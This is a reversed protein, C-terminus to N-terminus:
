RPAVDGPKSGHVSIRGDSLLEFSRERWALQTSTYSAVWVAFGILDRIPYLWPRYLCPPDHTIGWGVLLSEIMRNVISWAFVAAGIGPHGLLCGAVLALIGYPVSFILGTGLHGLPRSRRTGAAWRVLHQWMKKFGMHPVVHAIAHRSLVVNYGNKAIRNGIIFDHSFYYGTATYGGMSEHAQRNLVLTPSLAFKMGELLNAVLVGATMEVSMGIADMLSWFGGTALGRYVCTLAGNKSDLMPPVVERLYNRTVIV